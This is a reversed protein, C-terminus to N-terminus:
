KVDFKTTLSSQRGSNFSAKTNRLNLDTHSKTNEKTSVTSKSGALNKLQDKLSSIIGQYANRMPDNLNM